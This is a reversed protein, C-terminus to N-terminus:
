SGDSLGSSAAQLTTSILPFTVNNAYSGNSGDFTPTTSTATQSPASGFSAPLPAAIPGTAIGTDSFAPSGALCGSSCDTM